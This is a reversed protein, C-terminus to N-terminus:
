LPKTKGARYQDLAADAFADLRGGSVDAAIQEDWADADFSTFWQRFSALEEPKLAAVQQEITEVKGM